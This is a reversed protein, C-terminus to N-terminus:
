FTTQETNTGVKRCSKIIEKIERNSKLNKFSVFKTLLSAMSHQYNLDSFIFSVSPDYLNFEPKM